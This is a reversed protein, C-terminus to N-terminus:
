GDTKEEIELPDGWYVGVLMYRWNIERGIDPLRAPPIAGELQATPSGYSVLKEHGLDASNMDQNRYLAAGDGRALWRNVTARHLAHCHEHIEERSLVPPPAETIEAM